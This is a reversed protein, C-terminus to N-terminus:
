LGGKELLAILEKEILLYKEKTMRLVLSVDGIGKVNPHSFITGSVNSNEILKEIYSM